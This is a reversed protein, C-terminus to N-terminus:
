KVGFILPSIEGLKYSTVKPEDRQVVFFSRGFVGSVFMVAGPTLYDIVAIQGTSAPSGGFRIKPKEFPYFNNNRKPPRPLSKSNSSFCALRLNTEFQKGLILLVRSFWLGLNSFTETLILIIM